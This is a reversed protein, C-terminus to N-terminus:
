PTTPAVQVPCVGFVLTRDMEFPHALGAAAPARWDMRMDCGSAPPYTPQNKHISLHSPHQQGLSFLLLSNFTAASGSSNTQKQEKAGKQKKQANQDDENRQRGSASQCVTTSHREPLVKTREAGFVSIKQTRRRDTENEVLSCWSKCCPTEYPVLTTHRHAIPLLNYARRSTGGIFPVEGQVGLATAENPM